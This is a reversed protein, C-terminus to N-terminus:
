RSTMALSIRFCYDNHLVVEELLEELTVGSRKGANDRTHFVPGFVTQFDEPAQKGM